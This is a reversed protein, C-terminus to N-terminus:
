HLVSVVDVEPEATGPASGAALERGHDVAHTSSRLPVEELLWTVLFAALMLPVGYRFVSTIADAFGAEVFARRAPDLGEL